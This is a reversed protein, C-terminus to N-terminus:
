FIEPPRKVDKVAIEGALATLGKRTRIKRSKDIIEQRTEPTAKSFEALAKPNEALAMTLGLPIDQGQSYKRNM